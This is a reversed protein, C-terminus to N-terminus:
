LNEEQKIYDYGSGNFGSLDPYYYPNATKGVLNELNVTEFALTELDVTVIRSKKTLNVKNGDEFKSMSFGADAIVLKKPIIAVFGQPGYFVNSDNDSTPGHQVVSGGKVNYSTEDIESIRNSTFALGLCGESGFSTDLALTNPNIKLVVGLSYSEAPTSSDYMAGISVRSLLLYLSGEQYIMQGTSSAGLSAPLTIENGIKESNKIAEGALKLNYSKVKLLSNGTDSQEVIYAINNNVAFGFYNSDDATLETKPEWSPNMTNLYVIETGRMGYLVGSENDYSLISPPAETSWSSGVSTTYTGDAKLRYLIISNNVDLVYLDGKNDFCWVPQTQDLRASIKDYHGDPTIETGNVSWMLVGSRGYVGLEYTITAVSTAVTASKSGNVVDNTNTVQCYFHKTVGPTITITYAADTARAVLQGGENSANTNEYWQYSLIGKDPSAADVTLTVEWNEDGGYEYTKSQGEPHKTINPNGANFTEQTVTLSIIKEAFDIEQLNSSGVYKNYPNKSDILEVRVIFKTGMGIETFSLSVPVGAAVSKEQSQLIDGSELELWAKVNWNITVGAERSNSGPTQFSITFKGADEFRLVDACSVILGISILVFVFIKRM